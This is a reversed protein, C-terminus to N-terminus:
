DPSLSFTILFYFIKGLAIWWHEASPFDSMVASVHFSDLLFSGTCFFHQM